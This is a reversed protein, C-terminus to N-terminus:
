LRLLIQNLTLRNPCFSRFKAKKQIELYWLLTAPIVIKFNVRCVWVHELLCVYYYWNEQGLFKWNKRM